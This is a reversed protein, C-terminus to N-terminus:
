IFSLVQQGRQDKFQTQYKVVLRRYTELQQRKELVKSRFFEDYPHSGVIEGSIENAYFGGDDQIVAWDGPLLARMRQRAIWM